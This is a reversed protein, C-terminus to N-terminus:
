DKVYLEGDGADIYYSGPPLSNVEAQSRPRAPNQPSRGAGSGQQPQRQPQGQPAPRAPPQQLGPLGPVTAGWEGGSSQPARVYDEFIQREGPTLTEVGQTAAKNLVRGVVDGASVSNESQWQRWADEAAARSYRYDLEAQDQQKGYEFSDRALREQRSEPIDIAQGVPAAGRTNIRVGQAKDGFRQLSIEGALQSAELFTEAQSRLLADNSWDISAFRQPDIGLERAIPAFQTMYGARQEPPLNLAAFIASSAVRGREKAVELTNQDLGAFQQALDVQGAGAAAQAAGKYDGRGAYESAAIEGRLANVGGGTTLADQAGSFDGERIMAVSANRLANPTGDYGALANRRNRETRQQAGAEYAGIVTPVLANM